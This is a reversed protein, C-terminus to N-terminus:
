KNIASPRSSSLVCCRKARSDVKVALSVPLSEVDEVPEADEVSVVSVVRGSQERRRRPPIRPNAEDDCKLNQGEEGEDSRSISRRGRIDEVVQNLRMPHEKEGEQNTTVSKSTRLLMAALSLLV